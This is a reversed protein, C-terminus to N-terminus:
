SSLSMLRMQSKLVAQQLYKFTKQYNIFGMFWFDFDDVTVLELYKQSPKKVNESQNLMKIKKLPVLVKYHVRVSKGSPSSIKISRESCFAIKETSVFLLGAIPGATTSLYCQSAKLLKEDESVVFLQKFIKEVGGVQLIKAGLSLKGKVTESIKPGLRVHERVGNAFNDAKKGLKNMMKLMSDAKCQKFYAQPYQGDPGPLYRLPSRRATYAASNIPIGLAQDQFTNKM